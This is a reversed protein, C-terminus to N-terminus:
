QCIQLLKNMPKSITHQSLATPPKNDVSAMNTNASLLVTASGQIKWPNIKYPESSNNNIVILYDFVYSAFFICSLVPSSAVFAQYDLTNRLINCHGTYDLLVQQIIKGKMSQHWDQNM